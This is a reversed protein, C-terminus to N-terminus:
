SPPGDGLHQPKSIPEPTDLRLGRHPRARNYHRVYDRLVLELQRRSVTLLHDLCKRRVFPEGSMYPDVWDGLSVRGGFEVDCCHMEGGACAAGPVGVLAPLRELYGFSAAQDLGAVILGELDSWAVDDVCGVSFLVPVAGGGIVEHGM